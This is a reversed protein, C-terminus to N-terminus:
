GRAAFRGSRVSGVCCGPELTDVDRRGDNQGAGLLERADM